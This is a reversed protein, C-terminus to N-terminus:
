RTCRRDLRTMITLIQEYNGSNLSSENTYTEIQLEPNIEFLDSSLKGIYHSM